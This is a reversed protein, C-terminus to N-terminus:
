QIQKEFEWNDEGRLINAMTYKEAEKKTLQHSWSTRTKPSAGPGKSNYEAYYATKEKGTDDWKHWGEPKIHKDLYCNIYVTKAYPRWPRGLYFTNEEASGTIKCDFFVFGFETEENTSAATAYGKEKCFIECQDFVATSWGFIFDVTGEIYCNKYYQRSKNGHPYLTDQNGIFRCNDFVVCDGDVRVAVAQGVKGATNEFTLNRATFDNGFIFFGSSGTTGMNEGFRNKKSAYDDNTIITKLKDEGIMTVLNKSSPLILKEKYEGNKIFITTREKRFDPVADIADQVKTYDGSGDAAVVFDYAFIASVNLCLFCALFLGKM